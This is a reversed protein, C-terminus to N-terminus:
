KVFTQRRLQTEYEQFEQRTNIKKVHTDSADKKVLIYSDKVWVYKIDSKKALDKVDKLLIKKKVTLHENLYVQTNSLNKNIMKATLKVDQETKNFNKYQNLWKNRLYRSAMHVIIPRKGREKNKQDVRHAVQIDGEAPVPLGIVRGIENVIQIVDEGQTEPVNRIEINCIRSRNELFDIRDEQTTKVEELNKRLEMNEIQLKEQKTELTEIRSKMNEMIDRFDEYQKSTFQISTEIDIMKTTLITTYEEFLSRLLIEEKSSNSTSRMTSETSAQSGDEIESNKENTKDDVNGYIQIEPKKNKCDTCKWFDKSRMKRFITEMIGVCGYHFNNKCVSCTMRDEEIIPVKCKSCSM